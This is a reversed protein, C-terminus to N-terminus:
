LSAVRAGPLSARTRDAHASLARARVDLDGAGCDGLWNALMVYGDETLVSEPHFQVGVLPLTAHRLGMVLDHSRATVVLEDSLTAEDVVLSHYRGVVLPNRVGRFLGTEDHTVLSSRGHLLEPAAVVDAGFVEGLAQHGLCVGFLPRAHHACYRILEECRGADRPHGPGPSILVGDALAVDEVTAVDNRMVTVHAGLEGLYQVLNYVFSDYNDVVLIRVSDSM